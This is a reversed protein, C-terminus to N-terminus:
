VYNRNGGIAAVGGLRAARKPQKLHKELAAEFYTQLARDDAANHALLAEVKDMTQGGHWGKKDQAQAKAATMYQYLYRPVNPWNVTLVSAKKNYVVSGRLIEARLTGTKVLPKPSNKWRRVEYQLTRWSRERPTRAKRYDGSPNFGNKYNGRYEDPYLNFANETFHQPAINKRWAEFTDQLAARICDRIEGSLLGITNGYTNRVMREPSIIKM